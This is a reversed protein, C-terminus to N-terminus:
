EETDSVMDYIKQVAELWASQENKSWSVDLDPCKKLMMELYSTKTDTTRGGNEPSKREQAVPPPNNRTQGQKKSNHKRRTIFKSLEVGADHAAHIFFAQCKTTVAEKLGYVKFIEQFQGKTATGLDLKFLPKYLQELSKRYQQDQM